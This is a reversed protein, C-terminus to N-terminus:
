TLRKATGLVCPAHELQPIHPGLPSQTSEETQRSDKKGLLQCKGKKGSLTKEYSLEEERCHSQRGRWM